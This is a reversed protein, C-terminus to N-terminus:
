IGIWKRSRQPSQILKYIQTNGLIRKRPKAEKGKRMFKFAM